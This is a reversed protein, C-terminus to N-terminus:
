RTLSQKKMKSVLMLTVEETYTDRGTKGEETQAPHKRTGTGQSFKKIKGMGANTVRELAVQESHRESPLTHFAWFASTMALNSM